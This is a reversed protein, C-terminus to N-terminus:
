AIKKGAQIRVLGAGNADRAGASIVQVDGANISQRKQGRGSCRDVVGRCAVIEDYGSHIGQREIEFAKGDIASRSAKPAETM